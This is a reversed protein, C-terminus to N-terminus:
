VTEEKQEKTPPPTMLPIDGDMDGNWRKDKYGDILKRHATDAFANALDEITDYSGGTRGHPLIVRLLVEPNSLGVFANYVINRVSTASIELQEPLVSQGMRGKPFDEFGGGLNRIATWYVSRMDDTEANNGVTISLQIATGADGRDESELWAQVKAVNVNWNELKM